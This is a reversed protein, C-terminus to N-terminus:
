NWFCDKTSYITPNAKADHPPPSYKAMGIAMNINMRANTEFLRLFGRNTDTKNVIEIKKTASAKGLGPVDKTKPNGPIKNIALVPNKNTAVRTLLFLESFFAILFVTMTKPIKTM